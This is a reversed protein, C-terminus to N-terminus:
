RSRRAQKVLATAAMFARGRPSIEYGVEFSQTLGLKKLRVVGAKFPATERGLEAALRSAAVRPQRAIAELTARTWPERADLKRLTSTLDRVEDDSLADDLAGEVRDGDGGHHLAVRYVLSAGTLPEEKAAKMYEVLEAHDPFGARRAEEDSIDAVRVEDVQDVVLVGIPHCRYRSGAKVRARDWRRFTLTVAGNVLGDHFRKQFLLMAAAAEFTLPNGSSAKPLL